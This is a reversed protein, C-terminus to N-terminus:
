TKRSAASGSSRACKAAFARAVSSQPPHGLVDCIFAGTELLRGLDVGTELGSGELMYVVNETAVNGTAGPAFPCGGLGAVSCDFVALGVELCAFINALAQGYTDHFHGALRELPAHRAVREVLRRAALPTGVGITDGLSIERCGLRILEDAIEAVRAADVDGEYPCGLVCSIYGRVSVGRPRAASAIAAVRDLSEKISCNMNRRAFSESAATIVAVDGAGAACADQFGRMNPVLMCLQASVHPQASALVDATRAMQPVSKEPVFAGAEIHSLGAAALREILEARIDVPVVVTEGQLGDRPGVEVLRIARPITM